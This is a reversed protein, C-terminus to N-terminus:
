EADLARNDSSGLYGPDPHSLCQIRGHRRPIMEVQPLWPQALKRRLVTFLTHDQPLRYPLEVVDGIFYPWLTCCGGRADARFSGFTPGLLRIAGAAGGAM